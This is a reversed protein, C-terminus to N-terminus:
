GSSVRVPMIIYIYSENKVPRFVGPNLAGTMEFLLEDENFNVLFELLFRSNFAIDGGEGDIKAEIDIKDEGVQPANASVSLTQNELHFRVINANDKAFVAALRVARELAPKEVLMRTNYKTPIIKEYKPYEGDILRTRIETDGIIFAVQKDAYQEFVIEGETKEEQCTRLAESIAKAPILADLGGTGMPKSRVVSLRYGDTAVVEGGGEKKVIRVGGLVPRGEDTAACFVVARLAEVFAAKKITAKQKKGEQFIAPFEEKPVGPIKASAGLCRITLLGKGANMYVTDKPLSSVFEYLPRAPLCIGGEKEIKAGVYVSETMETNATIIKLRRNETVLLTNQLISLQPHVPVNRGTRSLAILFQEQLVSVIM